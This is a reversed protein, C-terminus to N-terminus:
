AGKKFDLDRQLCKGQEAERIRLYDKIHEKVSKGTVAEIQFALATTQSLRRGTRSIDYNFKPIEQQM